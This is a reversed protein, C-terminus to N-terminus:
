AHGRRRGHNRKSRCREIMEAIKPAFVSMHHRERVKSAAPNGFDNRLMPNDILEILRATMTSVDVYPVVFGCDGEVFEPAGGVLDFCVVPMGLLGVEVVVPPIPDGRSTLWLSDFMRGIGEPSIPSWIMVSSVGPIVDNGSPSPPKVMVLPGAVPLVTFSTARLLAPEKEITSCPPPLNGPRYMRLGRTTRIAGDFASESM